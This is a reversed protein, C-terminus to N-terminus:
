NLAWPFYLYKKFYVRFFLRITKNKYQGVLSTMMYVMWFVSGYFMVQIWLNGENTCGTYLSMLLATGALLFATLILQAADPAQLKRREEVSTPEFYQNWMRKQINILDWFSESKNFDRRGL